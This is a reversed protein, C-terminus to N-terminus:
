LQKEVLELRMRKISHGPDPPEQEADDDSHGPDAPEDAREKQLEEVKSRVAVSTQPYAPFTVPSIDFLEVELLERTIEGGEKPENWSDKITRFGFSMQDIDGRGISTMLDRVFQTDPPDIDIALGKDDESLELTGSKTRGLVYNPDHNFLARVDAEKITKKFAGPRIIERFGGLDDSKKDFVAAYGRIAPKEDGVARVEFKFSRTERDKM